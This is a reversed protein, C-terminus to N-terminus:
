EGLGLLRLANARGMKFRDSEAIEARDFWEAAERNGEFPYDVSFMIRDAGITAMAFHLVNTSFHGSTTVHFNSLFYETMTRKAPRDPVKALRSDLRWLDFLIREGFHGLVVQLRPYKDFLGSGALRLAHVATEEAFGWPAGILWPHGEYSLRQSAVQDRPHLYFPVGLREVEAWFPLYQPLDYYIARDDDGLQSYGNVMAGKFGLETVCRALERAAEGPDLMPLAAFGSFRDPHKAVQEALYDNARRAAEVAETVQTFGQAGVPGQSLVAREVGARDMDALREDHIDLMLRPLDTWYGPASYRGAKRSGPMAFHEELAIKNKM